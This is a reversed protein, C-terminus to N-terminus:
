RGGRTGELTTTTAWEDLAERLDTWTGHLACPREPNCRRRGFVCRGAPALAGVGALIDAFTIDGPRRRLSFGGGHGKEGRVLGAIVLRRMVKGLYHKPVGTERSLDSRRLAVGPALEALAAMARLAYITTRNFM